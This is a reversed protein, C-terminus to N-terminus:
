IVEPKDENKNAVFFHFSLFFQAMGFSKTAHLTKQFLRKPHWAPFRIVSKYWYVLVAKDSLVLATRAYRVSFVLNM